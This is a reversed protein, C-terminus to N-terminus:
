VKNFYNTKVKNRQKYTYIKGNQNILAVNAHDVPDEGSEDDGTEGEDVGSEAEDDDAVDRM